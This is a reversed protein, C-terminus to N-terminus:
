FSPDFMMGICFSFLDKLFTQVFRDIKEVIMGADAVVRNEVFTPPLVLGISNINIGLFM